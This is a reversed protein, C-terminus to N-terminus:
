GSASIAKIAVYAVLSVVLVVALGPGFSWCIWASLAMAIFVGLCGCGSGNKKEAM